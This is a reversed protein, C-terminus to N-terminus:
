SSDGELRKKMIIANEVPSAYYKKRQGVQQFGYKLYLNKAADNSCRLELFCSKVGHDALFGLCHELLLSGIGQCRAKKAVGIKFIEAEDIVIRGCVFGVPHGQDLAVFQWGNERTLEQALQDASWGSLSDASKSSIGELDADLLLRVSFPGAM